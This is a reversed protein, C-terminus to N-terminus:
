YCYCISCMATPSLVTSPVESSSTAPLVCATYLTEPELHRMVYSNQDSSVPAILATSDKSGVQYYQIYLKKCFEDPDDLIWKVVASKSEVKSLSAM